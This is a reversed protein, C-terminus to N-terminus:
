LEMGSVNARGSRRRNPDERSCVVPFFTACPCRGRLVSVWTDSLRRRSTPRAVWRSACRPPVGLLPLARAVRSSESLGRPNIVSLGTLMRGVVLVAVDALAPQNGRAYKQRELLSCEYVSGADAWGTSANGLCCLIIPTDRSM